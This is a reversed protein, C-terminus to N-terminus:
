QGDNLAKSDLYLGIGAIGYVALIETPWVAGSKGNTSM